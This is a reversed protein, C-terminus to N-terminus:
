MSPRKKQVHIRVATTSRVSPGMQELIEQRVEATLLPPRGSRPADALSDVGRFIWGDVWESVTNRHVDFIEALLDIKHGRASLLIAHARQRIRFTPSTKWLSVLRKTQAESLPPVFKM